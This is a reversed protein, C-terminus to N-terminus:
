SAPTAPEHTAVAPATTSAPAASAAPFSLHKANSQFSELEASWRRTRVGSANYNEEVSKVWRGVAPVYWYAYYVRGTEVTIQSGGSHAIATTGAGDHVIEAGNVRVPMSETKWEGEGEVKIADFHGAKVDIPENGVVQMKVDLQASNLRPNPHPETFKVQWQKGKSLPFSLPRNVITDTGNINRSRAWDAGTVTEVPAQASGDPKAELYIHDATTRLVVLRDHTERWGNPATEFTTAYTWTDGAAIAPAAISDAHCIMPAALLALLCSTQITM